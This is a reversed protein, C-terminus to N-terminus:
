VSVMVSLPRQKRWRASSKAPSPPPNGCCMVVDADKAALIIEDETTCAEMVLEIGNEACARIEPEFLEKGGVYRYDVIVAKAM